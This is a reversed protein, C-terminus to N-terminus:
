AKKKGPSTPPLLNAERARMVYEAAMRNGVDFRKMVAQVPRDDINERYVAAVRDLLQPTVRRARTSRRAQTIAELSDQYFDSDPHGHRVVGGDSSSRVEFAFGGLLKLLASVEVMRLDGQRIERQGPGSRFRVEVVEPAGNRVEVRAFQGARQEGGEFEIELWSPLHRDEVM